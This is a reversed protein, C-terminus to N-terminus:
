RTRNHYITQLAKYARDLTGTDLEVSLAALKGTFYEEVQVQIQEQM